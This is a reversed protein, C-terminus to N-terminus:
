GRPEGRLHDITWSLKADEAGTIKIQFTGTTLPEIFVADKFKRSWRVKGSNEVATIGMVIERLYFSSGNYLEGQFLTGGPSLRANGTVKAAEAPLLALINSGTKGVNGPDGVEVWGSMGRLMETRGSFRDIRVPLVTGRLNVHDYRYRTPWVAVALIILCAGMLIVAAKSKKTM